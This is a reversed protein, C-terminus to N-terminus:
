DITIKILSNLKYSLYNTLIVLFPSDTCFSIIVRWFNILLTLAIWLILISM